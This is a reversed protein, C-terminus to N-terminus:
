KKDKQVKEKIRTAKRGVRDRLYYLKARRVKGRRMVEIKEINPSQLPFIREVGIEDAGIKRVIFTKSVGSGKKSIVIGQFPQTRIKDGEIIKYSVKITDGVEFDQIREEEDKVEGVDEIEESINEEILEEGSESSGEERDDKNENSQENESTSKDETAAEDGEEGDEVEEQKEETEKELSNEGIDEQAEEPKEDKVEEVVEPETNDAIDEAVEENEPKESKENEEKTKKNEEQAM